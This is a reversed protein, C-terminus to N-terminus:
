ERKFVTPVRPAAFVEGLDLVGDASVYPLYVNVAYGSSHELAAQVADGHSETERSGVAVNSFLAVALLEGAEERLGRSILDLLEIGPPLERGDWGAVHRLEGECSAVVAFPHFEGHELLMRHAFDFGENMLAEVQAKAAESQEVTV